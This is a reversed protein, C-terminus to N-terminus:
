LEPFLSVNHGTKALPSLEALDDFEIVVEGEGDSVCLKQFVPDIRVVTGSVKEYTGLPPSAPHLTDEKFYGATIKMGKRLQLLLASIREVDEEPLIKKPVRTRKRGEEAIEEEYGRLAAFPSFIKARNAVPMRPHRYSPEPRSSYLIDGYKAAVAKGEKSNRYDM